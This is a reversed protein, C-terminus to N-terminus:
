IELSGKLWTILKKTEGFRDESGLIVTIFEKGGLEILGIFCEGAEPTWGTKIGKVEPLQGLLENTTELHHEIEGSVNTVTMEQRRISQYFVKNKLAFRAIHALDYATSYHNKDDEGDFNEFNTDNLGLQKVFNNMRNVFDDIKSQTQGALVFAADNASHVILGYILNEITMKEGPQLEMNKGVPYEKKITIVEDLPFSELSSIATVMKTISAPNLRLHPNKEALVLGSDADMVLYSKATLSPLNNRTLSPLQRSPYSIKDKRERILDIRLSIFFSFFLLLLLWGLLIRDVKM